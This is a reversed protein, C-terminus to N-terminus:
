FLVNPLRQLKLSRVNAPTWINIGLCEESISGNPLSNTGSQACPPSFETANYTSDGDDRDLM